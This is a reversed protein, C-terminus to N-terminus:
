SYSAIVVRDRRGMDRLVRIDQAGAKQFIESVPQGQQWGIEVLIRGGPELYGAAQTAIV